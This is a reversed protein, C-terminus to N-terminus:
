FDDSEDLPIVESANLMKVGSSTPAHSSMPAPRVSELQRVKMVKRSPGALSPGTDRRAGARGEVMGVLDDVMGNLASAQASLEEAASAAQEATAANSQTVKDMQAVATNVQDVGQAQENTASTIEAILRAVSHSGEEIEKFSVDLEGAIESGNRVREITTQILQTTDRAAQASRGALNRVEDAVVAFGKGAEGARAAEVAANLALLNTQFAIDEITKIIRNIQEASDSIEAMAQSMNTVATSGTAILKNNNQTTDNTKNANDANQRTMSAMEELASSTQELSAAQETSGEALSQSSDSIQAAAQNVQTSSEGLSAIISNLRRVIASIVVYSLIAGIIIGIVSVILMVITTTRSLEETHIVAADQANRVAALMTTAQQAVAQQRTVSEGELLETARGNANTNVLEMIQKVNPTATNMLGQYIERAISGGEAPPLEESLRKTLGDIGAVLVMLEDEQQKFTAPNDSEIYRLLGYRFMALNLRCGRVETGIARVARDDSDALIDALQSLKQDTSNWFDVLGDNADLARQQSNILSLDAIQQTVKLYDGWYQFLKDLDARLSQVMAPDSPWNKQYDEAERLMGDEAEKFPGNILNRMENVDSSFIIRLTNFRRQMLYRDVASINVARKGQRGLAMAESSIEVISYLGVGMIVVAVVILLGVILYIRKSLSM